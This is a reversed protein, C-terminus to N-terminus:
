KGLNIERESNNEILIVKDFTVSKVKISSYEEGERLFLTKNQDVNVIALRTDNNIIVGSINYSNTVQKPQKINSQIPVTLPTTHVPIYNQIPKSFKFPDRALTLYLTDSEREGTNIESIKNNEFTSIDSIQEDASNLYGLLSYFILGWITVTITILLYIIRNNKVKM